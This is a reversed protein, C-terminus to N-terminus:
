SLPHFHQNKKKSENAGMKLLTIGTHELIMIDKNWSIELCNKESLLTNYM